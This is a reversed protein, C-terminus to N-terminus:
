LNQQSPGPGQTENSLQSFRSLHIERKKLLMRFRSGNLLELEQQWAHFSCLSPDEIEDPDFYGPHCMLEYVSGPSLRAFCKNLYDFTLKGSAGIGLVRISPTSRSASNAVVALQMLMNRLLSSATLPRAKWDPVPRRVHAIGYERALDEIPGALMPLIHIHEHANLFRVTLGAELCREIQARWEAKVADVPLAKLMILAATNMKATFQGGRLAPNRRFDSTLPIGYTLNLHVGLDIHPLEFLWPILEKFRPGNAIVGTATISGKRACEVIGRSVSAFYGFDDANIVLPILNARHTAM